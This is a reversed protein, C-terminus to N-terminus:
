IFRSAEDGRGEGHVPLAAHHPQRSEGLGGSAVSGGVYYDVEWRQFAAVVPRFAVFLDAEPANTKPHPDM